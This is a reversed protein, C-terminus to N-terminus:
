KGKEMEDRLAKGLETLSFLPEGDENTGSVYLLGDEVMKDVTKKTEALSIENYIVEAEFENCDLEKMIVEICAQKEEAKVQEEVKDTDLNSCHNLLDDISGTFNDTIYKDM